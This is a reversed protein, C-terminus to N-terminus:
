GHAEVLSKTIPMGLGTGGGQRLGTTTQKFAEFVSAQDEEAIGAGTDSVTVVLKDNEERARITIAGEDTFKCANSVLNLFIQHIRQQDGRMLPLDAAIDTNVEVAKDNLLATATTGADTVIMAIDVDDSVFLNLSDSEIKSMDLVDNILNLLHKGSIVVNNLTEVQQENVEGLTGKVVFRTFNIIANLPTRLEHSMSALFTSKVQDSREAKTRAEEAEEIRLKLEEQAAVLAKMNQERLYTAMSLVATAVMMFAPVVPSVQESSGSQIVLVMITVSVIVTGTIVTMRASLLLSSFIISLSLYFLALDVIGQDTNSALVAIIPIGVMIYAGIQYYRSRSLTYAVLIIVIAILGGPNLGTFGEGALWQQFPITLTTVIALLFLVITLIILSSAKQKDNSNLNEAPKTLATLFKSIRGADQTSPIVSQSTQTTM